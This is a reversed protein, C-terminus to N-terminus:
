RIEGDTEIRTVAPGQIGSEDHRYVRVGSPAPTPEAAPATHEAAPHVEVPAGPGASPTGSGFVDEAEDKDATDGRFMRKAAEWLDAQDTSAEADDEEGILQEVSVQAEIVRTLVREFERCVMRVFSKREEPGDPDVHGRLTEAISGIRGAADGACAVFVAQLERNAVPGVNNLAVVEAALASWLATYASPLFTAEAHRMVGLARTRITDRLKIEAAAQARITEESAM